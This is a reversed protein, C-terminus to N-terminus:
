TIKGAILKFFVILDKAPLYKNKKALQKEFAGKRNEATQAVIVESNAWDTKVLPEM